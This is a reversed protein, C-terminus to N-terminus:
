DKFYLRISIVANIPQTLLLFFLILVDKKKFAILVLFNQLFAMTLFATPM